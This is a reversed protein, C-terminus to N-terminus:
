EEVEINKDGREEAAKILEDLYDVMEQDFNNYLMMEKVEKISYTMKMKIKRRIKCPQQGRDM